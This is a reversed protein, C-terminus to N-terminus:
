QIRETDHFIQSQWAVRQESIPEQKSNIGTKFKRTIIM